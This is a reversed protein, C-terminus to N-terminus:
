KIEGVYAAFFTYKNDARTRACYSLDNGETSFKAPREKAIRATAGTHQVWIDDSV